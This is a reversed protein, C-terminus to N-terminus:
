QNDKLSKKLEFKLYNAVYQSLRDLEQYTITTGFNSVVPNNPFQKVSKLFVDVLTQSESLHIPHPVEPMYSEYWIPEM